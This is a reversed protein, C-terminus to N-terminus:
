EAPAGKRRPRSKILKPNGDRDYGIRHGSPLSALAQQLNPDMEASKKRRGGRRRPTALAELAAAADADETLPAMEKGTMRYIETTAPFSLFLFEGSVALKAAVPLVLKKVGLRVTLVREKEAASNKLSAKASTLTAEKSTRNKSGRPRAM